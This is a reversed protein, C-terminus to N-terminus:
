VFFRGNLNEHCTKLQLGLLRFFCFVLLKCIEFNLKKLTQLKIKNTM